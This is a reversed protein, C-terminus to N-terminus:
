GRSEGRNGRESCRGKTACRGRGGYGAQYAEAENTEESDRGWLHGADRIEVEDNYIWLYVPREAKGTIVINDYGAYKLEPGFSGGLNSSGLFGTEPSKVMVETRSASIPTGCLPGMGFILLSAPDLPSVEPTVEDYLIRTNIGRGGIFDAAYSGTPERSVKGGSLDVRLIAGGYMHTM